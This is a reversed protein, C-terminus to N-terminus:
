KANIGRGKKISVYIIDHVGIDAGVVMRGVCMVWVVYLKM